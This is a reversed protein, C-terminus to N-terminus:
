NNQDSKKVSQYAYQEEIETKPILQINTEFQGALIEVDDRHDVAIIIERGTLPIGDYYQQLKYLIKNGPTETTGIIKLEDKDSLSLNDVSTLQLLTKTAYYHHMANNEAIDIGTFQVSDSVLFQTNTTSTSHYTITRQKLEPTALNNNAYGFQSYAGILAAAFTASCMLSHVHKM